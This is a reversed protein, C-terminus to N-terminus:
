KGSAKAADLTLPAEDARSIFSSYVVVQHNPADCVFVEDGLTCVCTPGAFGSSGNQLQDQTWM